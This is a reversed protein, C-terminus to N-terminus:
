LRKRLYALKEPKLLEVARDFEEEINWCHVCFRVVGKIGFMKLVGPSFFSHAMVGVNNTNLHRGIDDFLIGKINFGIMGGYDASDGSGIIEVGDISHMKEILYALLHDVRKKIKAVGGIEQAYEVARSLGFAAPYNIEGFSLREIGSHPMYINKNWDWDDERWDWVGNNWSAFIPNISDVVQANVYLFASGAPGRLYKRGSVAMFDCGIQKVDIPILGVTNAADLLYLVQYQKAIRGVQEAPQVMGLSNAMHCLSILKTREDILEELRELDIIGPKNAPAFKVEIGKEAKLKLFPAVNSIFSLEDVIVNDGSQLDLGAAIIGIAQSGNSVFVVEEETAGILCSVNQKAKQYLRATMDQAKASTSGYRVAIRFYENLAEIVQQPPVSTSVHNLYINECPTDERLKKIDM